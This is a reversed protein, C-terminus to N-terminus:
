TRFAEVPLKRDLDGIAKDPTRGVGYIWKTNAFWTWCTVDDQFPEVPVEVADCPFAIWEGGEYVGGYRTRTITLPYPIAM